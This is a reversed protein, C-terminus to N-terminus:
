RKRPHHHHKRRGKLKSFTPSGLHGFFFWKGNPAQVPFWPVPSMRLVSGGDRFLPPCAGGFAGGGQLGPIGPAAPLAPQQGPLQPFTPFAPLRAEPGPILRELLVEIADGALGGLTGGLFPGIATTGVFGAQGFPMLAARRQAAAAAILESQRRQADRIAIERRRQLLLAILQRVINLSAQSATPPAATAPPPPPPKPVFAAETPRLTGRPDATSGRVVPVNVTGGIAVQELGPRSRIGRLQGLAGLINRLLENFDGEGAPGPIPAPEAFTAPALLQEVRAPGGPGGAVAELAAEPTVGGGLKRGSSDFIEFIGKALDLVLSAGTPGTVISILKQIPTAQSELGELRARQEAERIANGVTAASFSAGFASQLTLVPALFGGGPGGTAAGFGSTPFAGGRQIGGGGGIVPISIGFVGAGGFGPFQECIERGDYV